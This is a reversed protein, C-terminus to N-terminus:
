LGETLGKLQEAKTKLPDQLSAVSEQDERLKKLNDELSKERSILEKERKELYLTVSANNEEDKQIQTARKNLAVGTEIYSNKRENLESEFALLNATKSEIDSLTKKNEAALKIYQNIRDNAEDVKAQEVETLEYSEKIMKSLAKPDKALIVLAEAMEAVAQLTSVQESKSKGSLSM